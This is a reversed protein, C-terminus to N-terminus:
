TVRRFIRERPEVLELLPRAPGWITEVKGLVLLGGPVLAEAFRFLLDEQMERTFYIIVNRCLVLDYARDPAPERGLERRFVRVRQRLREDVLYTSGEVRGYALRLSAPIGESVALSYRGEQARELSPGDIDTADILFGGPGRQRDYIQMLLMALSYPEEGSACGASWCRLTADGRGVVLEALHGELKTWTEPNRFFQTVNITLTLLLREVEGPSQGLVTAYDAYTQVGCARMRVALRRRLCKEKYMQLPPGGRTTLHNAVLVLGPDLDSM